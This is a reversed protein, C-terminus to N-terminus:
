VAVLRTVGPRVPQLVTLWSEDVVTVSIQYGWVQWTSAYVTVGDIVMLDTRARRTLDEGPEDRYAFDVVRKPLRVGSEVLQDILHSAQVGPVARADEVEDDVPFSFTSLEVARVGAVGTEPAEVARNVGSATAEHVTEWFAPIVKADVFWFKRM